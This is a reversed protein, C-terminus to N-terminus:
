LTKSFWNIVDTALQKNERLIYSGHKKGESISVKKNKWTKSFLENAWEKRKGNQEGQSAIFFANKYELEKTEGSLSQVANTKASISVISKVNYKNSASAVCALNAGISAGLIGIRNSDMNPNDKLFNIAALLDLPARNPNNFLDYIDGEDKGSKGHIRIDYALLSYGKEILDKWINNELWEEKSSGGQHILIIAPSNSKNVESQHFVAHISISDKTIFTVESSQAFLIFPFLFIFSILVIKQM